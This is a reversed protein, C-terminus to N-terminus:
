RRLSRANRIRKVVFYTVLLLCLWLPGHMPELLYHSISNGEGLSENGHGPHALISFSNILNDINM